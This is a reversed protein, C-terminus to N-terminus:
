ELSAGQRKPGRGPGSMSGLVTSPSGVESSLEVGSAKFFHGQSGPAAEQNSSQQHIAARSSGIGRRWPMPYSSQRHPDEGKHRERICPVRVTHTLAPRRHLIAVIGQETLPFTTKSFATKSPCHNRRGSYLPRRLRNDRRFSCPVLPCIRVLRAASHTVGEGM